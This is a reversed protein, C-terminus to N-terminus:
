PRFSFRVADKGSVFISNASSNNGSISLPTQLGNKEFFAVENPINFQYGSSYLLYTPVSDDKNCSFFCIVILIVLTIKFRKM